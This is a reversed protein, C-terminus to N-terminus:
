RESLWGCTRLTGPRAAVGDSRPQGRTTLVRTYQLVQELRHLAGYRSVTLPNVNRHAFRATHIDDARGTLEVDFRAGDNAIFRHQDFQLIETSFARLSSARYADDWDSLKAATRIASSKLRKWGSAGKERWPGYVLTGPRDSVPDVMMEFEDRNLLTDDDMTLTIPSRVYGLATITALYQGSRQDSHIGAIRTDNCLTEIVEWTRDESADDFIIIGSLRDGGARVLTSVTLELHHEANRTPIVATVNM